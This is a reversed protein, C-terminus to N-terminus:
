WWWIVSDDWWGRRLSMNDMLPGNVIKTISPYHDQEHLVHIWQNDELEDDDADVHKHM